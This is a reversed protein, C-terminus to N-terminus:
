VVQLALIFPLFDSPFYSVVLFFYHGLVLSPRWVESSTPQLMVRLKAPFITADAQILAVKRAECTRVSLVLLVRLNIRSQISSERVKQRM